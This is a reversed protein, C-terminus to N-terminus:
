MCQQTYIKDCCFRESDFADYRPVHKQKENKCVYSSGVKGIIPLDTQLRLPGYWVMGDWVM